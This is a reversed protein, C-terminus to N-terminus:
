FLVLNLFFYNILMVKKSDSYKYFVYHVFDMSYSLWFSTVWHDTNASGQISVRVIKATRGFDVKIWQEHNNVAASWATSFRGRVINRHLRALYPAHYKDLSSSATIRNNSIKGSQMGMPLHCMSAATILVTKVEM